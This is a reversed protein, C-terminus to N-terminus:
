KHGQNMLQIVKDEGLRRAVSARFEEPVPSQVFANSSDAECALRYHEFAEELHARQLIGQEAIWGLGLHGRADKQRIAKKFVNRVCADHIRGVCM